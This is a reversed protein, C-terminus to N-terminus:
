WLVDASYCTHSSAKLPFYDGGRPDGVEASSSKAVCSESLDPAKEFEHKESSPLQTLPSLVGRGGLINTQSPSAGTWAGRSVAMSRETLVHVRGLPCLGWSQGLKPHESPIPIQEKGEECVRKPLESGM